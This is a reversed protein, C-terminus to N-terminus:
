EGKGEVDVRTSRPLGLVSDGNVFLLDVGLPALGQQSQWSRWFDPALGDIGLRCENRIGPGTLRLGRDGFGASHVILTASRDPYEPLGQAFAALPPMALPQSIVAFVAEAPAEVLPAGCHFRLWACAEPSPSQLWVPTEYDALALLIAGSAACLPAPAPPLGGIAQSMVPRSLAALVARFIRQGDDVPDAFGPLLPIHPAKM